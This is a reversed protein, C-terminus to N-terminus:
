GHHSWRPGVTVWETQWSALRRRNLIWRALGTLTAVLMALVALAALGAVLVRDRAHGSTMPPLQAKGAHNLYATVKSGAPTMAAVPVNGVHRQGASTWSAPVWEFWTNAGHDSFEPGAAAQLTVATVSHLQAGQAVANDARMWAGAVSFVVPSLALFAVVAALPLWAAVRDSRRCLPNGDLCLRRKIKMWTTTPVETM